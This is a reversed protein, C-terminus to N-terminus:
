YLLFLVPQDLFSAKPNLYEIRFKLETNEGFRINEDYGGAEDFLKRTLCFTGPISIGLGEIKGNTNRVKKIITEKTKSNIFFMDGYIIDPKDHTIKNSYNKLADEKFVDDSDLFLLYEGTSNKAGMNRASCVGKNEQFLYKVHTNKFYPQIINKSDDTSGDDIILIEYDSFSQTLVSNIARNIIHGRNYTPIIISILPM